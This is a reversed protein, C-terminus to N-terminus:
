DNSGREGLFGNDGFDPSLENIKSIIFDTYLPPLKQINKATVPVHEGSGNTFTWDTICAILRKNGYEYSVEAPMNDMSFVKGRVLDLLIQRNDGWTLPRITVTEHEDWKDCHIIVSQDDFAGM